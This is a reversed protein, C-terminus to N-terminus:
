KHLREQVLLHPSVASWMAQLYTVRQQTSFTKKKNKKQRSEKPTAKNGLRVWSEIVQLASFCIYGPM